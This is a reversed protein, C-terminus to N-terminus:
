TKDDRPKTITGAYSGNATRRADQRDSKGPMNAPRSRSASAAAAAASQATDGNKTKWNGEIPDALGGRRDPDHGCRGPEIKRFM